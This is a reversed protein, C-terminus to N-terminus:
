ETVEKVRKVEKRTSLVGYKLNVAALFVLLYGFQVFVRIWEMSASYGFLVAFIGGVIGKHHLPNSEDLGLSYAEEFLWSEYGKEELFEVLEHTGYGVLGSAIFTLLISTVYFFKRLSLKYELKVIAISLLAALGIGAIAGLVTGYLDRAAFPTLFLVTEVVERVVFVFSILAIGWVFKKKAKSEVEERVNKGAMWLIMYTLVAVALYSALAEFIVKQEEELGGYVAIAGYAAAFGILLAAIAGYYAYPIEGARGSRKLYAILVAVLLVAELGERLAIVFQGLM